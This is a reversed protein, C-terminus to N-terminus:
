WSLSSNDVTLMLNSLMPMTAITIPVPNSECRLRSHLSLRRPASICGSCSHLGTAACVLVYNSAGQHRTTALAPSCGVPQLGAYVHYITRCALPINCQQCISMRAYHDPNLRLALELGM